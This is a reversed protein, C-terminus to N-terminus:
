KRAVAYVSEYDRAEVDLSPDYERPAVDRFGARRLINLLSEQDFMWKHHGEMYAMCNLPDIRSGTDYFGSKRGCFRARDFTEPSVFARIYHEANPVCVSFEGGPKLVRLSEELIFSQECFSFHELTHSSYIREVSNDPFPWRSLLDHVITASPVIDLGIWDSSLPQNGCGINVWLRPLTKLLEEVCQRRPQEGMVESAARPSAKWLKDRIGRSAMM